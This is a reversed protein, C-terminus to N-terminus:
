GWGKIGSSPNVKLTQEQSAAALLADRFLLLEPKRAPRREILRSFVFGGAESAAPDALDAESAEAAEQKAQRCTVLPTVPAPQIAVTQWASSQAEDLLM